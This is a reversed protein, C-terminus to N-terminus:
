GVLGARMQRAALGAELAGYAFCFPQLGHPAIWGLLMVEGTIWGMLIAGSILAVATGWPANRWIGYAALLQSGGVVTALILGPIVFSGFPTGDLVDARMSLVEDSLGAMLILGCAVAMLGMFMELLALPTSITNRSKMMNDRGHSANRDVTNQRQSV